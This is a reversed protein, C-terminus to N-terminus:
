RALVLIEDLHQLHEDAGVRRRVVLGLVADVEDGADLIHGLVEVVDCACVKVYRVGPEGNVGEGSWEYEDDTIVNRPMKFSCTVICFVKYEVKNV